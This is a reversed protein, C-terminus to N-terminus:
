RSVFEFLGTQPFCTFRINLLHFLFFFYDSEKLILLLPAFAKIPMLCNRLSTEKKKKEIKKSIKILPTLVFLLGFGSFPM